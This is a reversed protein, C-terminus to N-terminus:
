QAKKAEERERKKEELRSLPVIKVMIMGDSIVDNEDDYATVKWFWKIGEVRELEAVGRLYGSTGSKRHRIQVDIGFPLEKDFDTNNEAGASAASELLAITIGGHLFGHPQFTRPTIPMRMEVRDKESVITEIDYVGLVGPRDSM